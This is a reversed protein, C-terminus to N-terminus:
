KGVAETKDTLEAFVLYAAAEALRDEMRRTSTSILRLPTERGASFASARVEHRLGTLYFSGALYANTEHLAKPLYVVVREPDIWNIAVAIARGLAMGGRLFLEALETENRPRAALEEIITLRDATLGKKVAQEIIAQPAAFAEV